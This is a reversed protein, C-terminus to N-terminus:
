RTPIKKEDLALVTQFGTINHQSEALYIYHKLKCFSEFIISKHFHVCM